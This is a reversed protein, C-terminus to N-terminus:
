YQSNTIKAKIQCMTGSIALYHLSSRAMKTFQPRKLAYHSFVPTARHAFQSLGDLGQLSPVKCVTHAMMQFVEVYAHMLNISRVIYGTGAHFQHSSAWTWPWGSGQDPRNHLSTSSGPHSSPGQFLPKRFFIARPLIFQQDPVVTPM